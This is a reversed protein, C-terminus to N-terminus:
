KSCDFPADFFFCSFDFSYFTIKLKVIKQHLTKIWSMKVLLLKLLVGTCWTAMTVMSGTPRIFAQTVLNILALNLWGLDIVQNTMALANIM